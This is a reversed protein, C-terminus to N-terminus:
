FRLTGEVVKGTEVRFKSAVDGGGLYFFDGFADIAVLLKETLDFEGAGKIKGFFSPWNVRVTPM